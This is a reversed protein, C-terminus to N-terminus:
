KTRALKKEYRELMGLAKKPERVQAKEEQVFRVLGRILSPLGHVPVRNELKEYKEFQNPYKRDEQPKDPYQERYERITLVKSISAKSYYSEGVQFRSVNPNTQAVVMAHFQDETIFKASKDHFVIVGYDPIVLNSM